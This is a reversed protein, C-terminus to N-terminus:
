DAYSYEPMKRIEERSLDCVVGYATIGPPEYPIAALSDDGRIDGAALIIKLVKAKQVDILLDAVRGIYAGSENVVQRDIVASALFRAPSFAWDYPEGEPYPEMRQQSPRRGYPGFRPYPPPFYRYGYSRYRGSRYYYDPNLGHEYYDFESFFASSSAECLTNLITTLCLIVEKIHLLNLSNSIAGTIFESQKFDISGGFGPAGSVAM